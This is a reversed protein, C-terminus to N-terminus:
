CVLNLRSFSARYVLSLFLVAYGDLLEELIQFLSM